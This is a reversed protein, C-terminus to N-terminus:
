SSYSGGSHEICDSDEIYITPVLEYQCYEEPRLAVPKVENALAPSQMLTLGSVATLLATVILKNRKM